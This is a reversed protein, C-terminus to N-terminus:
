IVAEPPLWRWATLVSLCSTSLGHSLFQPRGGAALVSRGPVHPLQEPLLGASGPSGM